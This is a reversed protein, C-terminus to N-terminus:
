ERRTNRTKGFAKKSVRRRHRRLIRPPQESVKEVDKTKTAKGTTKPTTRSPPPKSKCYEKGARKPATKNSNAAPPNDSHIIHNLDPIFLLKKAKPNLKTIIKFADPMTRSHLLGWKKLDKGPSAAVIIVPHKQLIRAFGVAYLASGRFQGPNQEYASIIKDPGKEMWSLFDHEFVGGPCHGLYAPSIIPAGKKLVKGATMVLNSLAQSVHVLYNSSEHPIGVIAADYSGAIEQSFLQQAKKATQQYTHPLEGANIDIIERSDNMFVQVAYQVNLPSVVRKLLRQFQDTGAPAAGKTLGANLLAEYTLKSACGMAISQWGGTFGAFPDLEIADVTIICDAYFLLQNLHIRLRSRTEGLFITHRPDNNHTVVTYKNFIDNGLMSRLEESKMPPNIGGAVLLTVRAHQPRYRDIRKLLVPLIEQVGYSRFNDPIVVIIDVKASLVERLDKDRINQEILGNKELKNEQASQTLTTVRYKTGIQFRATKDRFPLRFYAM